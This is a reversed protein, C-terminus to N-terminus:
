NLPGPLKGDWRPRHALALFSSLFARAVSFWAPVAAKTGAVLRNSMRQANPSFLHAGKPCRDWFLKAGAM